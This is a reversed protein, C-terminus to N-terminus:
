GNAALYMRLDPTNITCANNFCLKDTHKTVFMHGCNPLPMVRDVYGVELDEYYYNKPILTYQIFNRITENTMSENLFEAQILGSNNADNITWKHYDNIRNFARIRCGAHTLGRDVVVDYQSRGDVFDVVDVLATRGLVDPGFEEMQELQSFTNFAFPPAVLHDVIHVYGNTAPIDAQVILAQEIKKFFTNVTLESYLSQLKDKTFLEAATYSVGALIHNRVVGELNRHWTPPNFQEGKSFLTFIPNATLIDNTPALVTVNVNPDDLLVDLLGLAMLSDRFMSLDDRNNIIHRVSQQATVRTPSLLLGCALLLRLVRSRHVEM